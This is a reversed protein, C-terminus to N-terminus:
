HRAFHLSLNDSMVYMTIAALCFILAVWVGIVIRVDGTLVLTMRFINAMRYETGTTITKVKM